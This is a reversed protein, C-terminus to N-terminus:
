PAASCTQCVGHGDVYNHKSYPAQCGWSITDSCLQAPMIYCRTSNCYDAQVQVGGKSGCYSVLRKPVNGYNSIYMMISLQEERPESTLQQGLPSKRSVKYPEYRAFVTLNGNTSKNTRVEVHSHLLVTTSDYIRVPPNSANRCSVCSAVWMSRESHILLQCWSFLAVVLFEYVVASRCIM